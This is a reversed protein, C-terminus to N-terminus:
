IPQSWRMATALATNRHTAVQQELTEITDHKLKEKRDEKEKEIAELRAVHRKIAEFFKEEDQFPLCLWGDVCM